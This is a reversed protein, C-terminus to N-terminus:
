QREFILFLNPPQKGELDRKLQMQGLCHAEKMDVLHMILKLTEFSAMSDSLHHYVSCYDDQLCCYAAVSSM